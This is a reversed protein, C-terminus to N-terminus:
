VELYDVRECQLDTPPETPNRPGPRCVACQGCVPDTAHCMTESSPASLADAGMHLAAPMAGPAMLQVLRSGNANAGDMAGGWSSVM